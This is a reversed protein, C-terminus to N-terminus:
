RRPVEITRSAQDAVFNGERPQRTRQSPLRPIAAARGRRAPRAPPGILNPRVRVGDRLREKRDNLAVPVTSRTPPRALNRADSNSISGPGHVCCGTGATGADDLVCADRSAQLDATEVDASQVDATTTSFYENRAFTGAPRSPAPRVTFLENYLVDHLVLALWRITSADSLRM